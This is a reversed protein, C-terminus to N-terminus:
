LVQMSVQSPMHPSVAPPPTPPPLYHPPTRSTPKEPTALPAHKEKKRFFDFAANVQLVCVCMCYVCACMFLVYM